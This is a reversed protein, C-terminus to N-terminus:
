HGIKQKIKWALFRLKVITCGKWLFFALYIAKHLWQYKLDGENKYLFYSEDAPFLQVPKGTVGPVGHASLTVPWVCVDLIRGAKDVDVDVIGSKRLRWDWPLDFVFNGLSYAVLMDTKYEIEFFVHPHHGVVITAGCEVFLNALNKQDDGAATPGEVGWHLIIIVFDCEDKISQIENCILESSFRNYASQDVRENDPVASAAIVAFRAGDGDIVISRIGLKGKDSLGAVKIGAQKLNRATEEFCDEGHQLSHNNAMSLINIGARKLQAVSDPSGRFVRSTPKMPSYGIDSLPGELNGIVFDAQSLVEVVNEFVFHGSEIFSRPGHGFSFFHEGLSIDGVFMLRM